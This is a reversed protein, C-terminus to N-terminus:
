SHRRGDGSRARRSRPAARELSRMLARRLRATASDIADYYTRARGEISLTIRRAATLQISCQKDVGGRPGNIDSLRVEVDAAQGLVRDVVARIRDTIYSLEAECTKIRGDFVRIHM